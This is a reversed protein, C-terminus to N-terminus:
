LVGEEYHENRSETFNVDVSCEFKYPVSSVDFEIHGQGGDNNYWDVGTGELHKYGFEEIQQLFPEAERESWGHSEGDVEINEISGSDGGGSFEIRVIKWGRDVMGQAIEHRTNKAKAAAQERETEMEHLIKAVTNM